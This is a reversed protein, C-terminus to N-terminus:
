QVACDFVHNAIGDEVGPLVPLDADGQILRVVRGHNCNTVVTGTNRLASQRQEELREVADVVRTPDSGAAHAQSKRDNAVRHGRMPSRHRRLVDSRM